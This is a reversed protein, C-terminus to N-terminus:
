LSPRPRRLLQRHRPAQPARLAALQTPCVGTGGGGAGGGPPRAASGAPAVRCPPRSASAPRPRTQAPSTSCADRGAAGGGLGVRRGGKGGGRRGSVRNDRWTGRQPREARRALGAAATRVRANRTERAGSEGRVRAELGSARENGRARRTEFATPPSRPSTAYRGGRASRRAM